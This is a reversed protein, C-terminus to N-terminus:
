GPVGQCFFLGGDSTVNSCAFFCILGANLANDSPQVSSQKGDPLNPDYM